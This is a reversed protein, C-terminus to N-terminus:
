PKNEVKQNLESSITSAISNRFEEKHVISIVLELISQQFEKRFGQDSLIQKAKRVWLERYQQIIASRHVYEKILQPRLLESPFPKALRDAVKNKQRPILGQGFIPRKYVTQVAHYHGVM